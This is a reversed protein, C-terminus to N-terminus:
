LLDRYYEEWQENWFDSYEEYCSDCFLVPTNPDDGDGEWYYNTLAERLKIQAIRNCYGACKGIHYEWKSCYDIEDIEHRIVRFREICIGEVPNVNRYESNWVRILSKM